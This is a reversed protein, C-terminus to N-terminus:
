RQSEKRGGVEATARPSAAATPFGGVIQEFARGVRLVTAEDFRRGIIMLGVPLGDAFGAPVTMAPHGTVSLPCTNPIMELARAVYEERPANPAPIPTARLPLTPMVLVDHKSLAADYAATLWPSLNQAKAYYRGGYEDILFQGMLAVLKVTESLDNAHALRGAHFAQILRPSYRGKWNMGYGSLNLMQNTAGEIAIVNWVHVGNRHAPVSVESVKAGAEALRHAAALVTEDVQPESLRPWGFGEKVIGVNLGRIGLDLGTIYDDVVISSDQRPDHGDRGAIVQLMAAVDAVTTAMPGLTDITLEIPFAGTYPVLGFTGKIGVVGCFASPMRVSGGQDGGLALDVEGAALLAASGGSSGGATREPSWPNRVPGTAPTHSGGSFCLDECVSKGVIEAGAELLRTVVTADEDPVFGELTRSGNMMPVGAVCTNDKIVVRKGALRGSPAGKISTRWYWAGYPNEEPTPRAGPTRPYTVPLAPEVLKDVVDYSALSGKILGQFSVLDDLNLALHYRRAIEALESVTPLRASM